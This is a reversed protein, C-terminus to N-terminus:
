QLVNMESDCVCIMCAHLCKNDLLLPFNQVYWWLPIHSFIKFYSTSSSLFFIHILWKNNHIKLISHFDVDFSKKFYQYWNLLLNARAAQTRQWPVLHGSNVANNRKREKERESPYSKEWFSNNYPESIKCPAKLWLLFLIQPSILNPPGGIAGPPYM